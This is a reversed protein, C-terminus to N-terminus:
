RRRVPDAVAVRDTTDFSWASVMGIRALAVVDPEDIPADADVTVDFRAGDGGLTVESVRAHRDVGHAMAALGRADGEALLGCWGPHDVALLGDTQPRLAVHVADGSVTVDRAFGPPIMPQLAFTDALAELPSAPPRIRRLRESTIWGAGTWADGIMRHATEAGVRARLTLESSCMLLHAQAQFERAVAALAGKSLDAVQFTPDFAGAYDRRGGPEQDPPVANPVSALALAAVSETLPIAGVPEEADDIVITWRCHPERDVPQRPPRHIPRIRARPNTALATADFTPDEITHCMGFVREEGHPETDLLAGCHTLWFEAHDDDLIRYGVDMYQHVFGVDLQLAKMIADVRDGEIGMLRRMRGTYVPSAGMWEDIAVDNMADLDGTELAVQPLLARTVIMGGLMTDLAVPVLEARPLTDLSVM